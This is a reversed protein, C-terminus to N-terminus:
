AVMVRVGLRGTRINEISRLKIFSVGYHSRAGAGYHGRAGGWPPRAAAAHSGRLRSDSRLGQARCVSEQSGPGPRLARARVLTVAAGPRAGAALEAARTPSPPAPLPRSPAPLPKPPPLRQEGSAGESGRVAGHPRLRLGRM